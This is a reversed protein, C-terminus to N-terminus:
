CEASSWRPLMDRTEILLKPTGTGVPGIQWASSFLGSPTEPSRDKDAEKVFM